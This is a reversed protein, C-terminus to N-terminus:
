SFVFGLVAAIIFITLVSFAILSTRINKRTELIEAKRWYSLHDWPVRGPRGDEPSYLKVSKPQENNSIV